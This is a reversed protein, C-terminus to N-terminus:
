QLEKQKQSGIAKLLAIANSVIGFFEYVSRCGAALRFLYGPRLYFKSLMRKKAQMIETYPVNPNSYWDSSSVDHHDPTKGDTQMQKERLPAGYRPAATNISIYDANLASIFREVERLTDSNEGPLGLIFHAGVRMGLKKASDIAKKVKAPDMKKNQESLLKSNAHEIGFQVLYCGAQKMAGLFPEDMEDPRAYCHWDLRRKALLELVTQAHKKDAGFSMDKLFVQRIGLHGIHELEDDINQATRKKYGSVWSNCFACQHPCGHDTLLSAFRRHKSFPMRYRGTFLEHMPIPIEFTKKSKKNACAINGNRRYTMREIADYDGDLYSIIDRTTFDILAADLFDYRELWKESDSLFIEGSAFTAKAKLQRVFEFDNKWSAASTLFYIYHPDIKNTRDFCDARSLDQAVADVLHIDYRSDLIGSQFLLDGPHWYYDAKAVSSCYYDRLYRRRGPPNLLLFRERM